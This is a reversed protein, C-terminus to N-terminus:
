NPENVKPAVGSYLPLNIKLIEPSALLFPPSSERTRVSIQFQPNETGILQLIRSRHEKDGSCAVCEFGGDDHVFLHEGKSDGGSEVCAPCQAIWANPEKRRANVLRGIELRSM